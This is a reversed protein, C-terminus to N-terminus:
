SPISGLIGGISGEVTKKPSVDPCLKRKGFLRGIYYAFTDSFWSIIFVLWILRSGLTHERIFVLLSFFNIIYIYGIVTVASSMANYKKTFIPVSMSCLVVLYIIPLIYESSNFYLIFIDAVFGAALVWIIAKSNTQSYVNIYEYLAIGTIGLVGIKFIIGGSLVFFLILIILVAASLVRKHKDVM